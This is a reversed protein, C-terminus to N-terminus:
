RQATATQKRDSASTTEGAGGMVHILRLTGGRQVTAAGYAVAANGLESFDTAVLVRALRPLRAAAATPAPPVVAVTVPSHHLVTRSVSGFRLRGLGHRQHTGVVVLDVAQRTALAFLNGEPRGWGPEVTVTVREPPLSMAVREALDRELLNQIKEPNETLPLPGHYGIRHAAEPPWDSHVVNIECPGIEQMENLWHLAADSAASFDYGVLVKLAHEGRIWSGLRSGPRVVLTPIPSTEAAREAVSGVVLRRSLGHGVAGLVLFRGRTETAVNIVEDFVSGSLLKDEVVTGANRLRDAERDLDGRKQSLAAEFLTPDVAAMGHFEDVHVLVLKTGFSRAMAAAIEVAEAAMASFDTGCVIPRTPNNQSLKSENTAMNTRFSALM